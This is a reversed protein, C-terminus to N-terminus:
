IELNITYITLNTMENSNVIAQKKSNVQKWMNFLQLYYEQLRSYEDGQKRVLEKEKIDSFYIKYYSAASLINYPECFEWHLNDAVIHRSQRKLYSSRWQQFPIWKNNNKIFPLKNLTANQGQRQM